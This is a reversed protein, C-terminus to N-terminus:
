HSSSRRVPIPVGNYGFPVGGGYGSGMSVWSSILRQSVDPESHIRATM